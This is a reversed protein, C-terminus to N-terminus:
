NGIDAVAKIKAYEASYDGVICGQTDFYVPRRLLKATILAKKFEQAAVDNLDTIDVVAESITQSGSCGSGGSSFEQFPTDMGFIPNVEYTTADLDVVTHLLTM